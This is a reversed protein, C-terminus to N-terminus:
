VNFSVVGLRKEPDPNGYITIGGLAQMAQVTKRTLAIEHERVATMGISQLFLLARSMGVIGPINPTGGHHRDPADLFTATRATVQSATGGGPVYPEVESMIAKPGYLFGSGFPAYAKHGAGALFEI